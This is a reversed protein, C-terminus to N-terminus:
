SGVHRTVCGVFTLSFCAKLLQCPAKEAALQCPSVLAPGLGPHHCFTVTRPLVRM